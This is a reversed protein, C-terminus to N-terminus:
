EFDNSMGRVAQEIIHRTLPLAGAVTCASRILILLNRVHGGSMRCLYKLTDTSDFATQQEVQAAVLRKRVIECLAEMGAPNDTGEPNAVKVMPLVDPRRGFVNVLATATPSFVM